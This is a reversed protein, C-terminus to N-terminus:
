PELSALYAAIAIMDDEAPRRGGADPRGLKRRSGGTQMDHLQRFLYLPSLNRIRPVEGLGRLDAGHCIWCTVTCDNVWGLVERDDHGAFATWSCSCGNTEHLATVRWQTARTRLVGRFVSREPCIVGSPRDHTADLPRPRM